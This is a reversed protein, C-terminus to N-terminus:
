RYERLIVGGINDITICQSPVDTWCGSNVYLVGDKELEMAQHTHGCFVYKARKQKAYAIADLAIKESVRLWTKSRQKMWRSLRQEDSDIRQFFQYFWTALNTILVNETLFKDFQHGHIALYKESEFEWIYEDYVTIGLLHSLIEAIGDHNGAVWVVEVDHKHGSLKRIYSLFKWDAKSLRKFNLDEFVDGNLILRTFEYQKLMELADKSRSVESGLHIDSMILTDVVNATVSVATNDSHDSDFDAESEDFLLSSRSLTLTSM